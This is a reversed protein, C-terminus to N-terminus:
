RGHFIKFRQKWLWVRFHNKNKIEDFQIGFGKPKGYNGDPNSWRVIGSLPIVGSRTKINVYCLSGQEIVSNTEIYLGEMSVNVLTGSNEYNETLGFSVANKVPYRPAFVRALFNEYIQKEEKQVPLFFLAIGAIDNKGNVSDLRIIRGQVSISIPERFENELKLHLNIPDGITLFHHHPLPILAGSKSVNITMGEGEREGDKNTWHFPVPHTERYRSRWGRKVASLYPAAIERRLFYFILGLILATILLNFLIDSSHLRVGALFLKKGISIWLVMWLNYTIVVSAFVLFLFYGLKRKSLLGYGIILSLVSLIYQLPQIKSLIFDLKYQNLDYLSATVYFNLVPMSLFVIAVFLVPLPYHFIRLTM